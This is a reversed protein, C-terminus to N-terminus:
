SWWYAHVLGEIDCNFSANLGFTVAVMNNEIRAPTLHPSVLVTEQGTAPNRVTVSRIWASASLLQGGPLRIDWLSHDAVTLRPTPWRVEWTGYSGGSSLWMYGTFMDQM